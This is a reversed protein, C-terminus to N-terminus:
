LFYFAVVSAGLAAVTPTTPRNCIAAEETESRITIKIGKERSPCDVTNFLFM